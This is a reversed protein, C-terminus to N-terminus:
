RVDVGLDRKGGRSWTGCTQCQYRQFRSVKTMHFGRKQLTANACRPCRLLGSEDEAVYLTLTPHNDIWPRARAHFM